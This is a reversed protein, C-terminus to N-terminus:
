RGVGLCLRSRRMRAASATGAPEKFAAALAGADTGGAGTVTFAGAFTTATALNRDELQMDYFSGETVTPGRLTGASGASWTSGVARFLGVTVILDNAQSTAGASTGSTVADPGGGPDTLPQGVSVDFASATAIGNWEGCILVKAAVASGWTVTVTNAGAACNMAYYMALGFTGSSVDVPSNTAVQTWTNGASDTVSSIATATPNWAVALVLLNGATNDSGYAHAVNADSGSEGTGNAQVFAWAM